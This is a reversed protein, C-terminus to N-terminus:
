DEQIWDIIVTPHGQGTVGTGDTGEVLTIMVVTDAAIDAAIIADTDDGENFATSILTLDAITLTGYANEDAITGVHVLANTADCAFAETVAVSISKLRGKKGAPGTVYHVTDGAVAGFDMNAFNHCATQPNDYSM